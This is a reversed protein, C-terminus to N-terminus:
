QNQCCMLILFIIYSASLNGVCQDVSHSLSLHLHVIKTRVLSITKDSPCNLLSNKQIRKWKLM